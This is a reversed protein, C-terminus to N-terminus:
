MGEDILTRLECRLARVRAEWQLKWPQKAMAHHTTDAAATDSQHQNAQQLVRSSPAQGMTYSAISPPDAVSLLINNAFKELFQCALGPM